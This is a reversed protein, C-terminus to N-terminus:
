RAAPRAKCARAAEALARAQAPGILVEAVRTSTLAHFLAGQDM